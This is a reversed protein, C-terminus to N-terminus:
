RKLLKAIINRTQSQLRFIYNGTALGQPQVLIQPAAAFSKEFVKKGIVDYISVQIPGIVPENFSVNIIDEFPNPWITADITPDIQSYLVSASLPQLFGQRTKFNTSSSFTNIVSAQGISEQIFYTTTTGYVFQSSGQSSLTEKKKVQSYTTAFLLLLCCNLYMQKSM